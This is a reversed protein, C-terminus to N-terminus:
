FLTAITRYGNLASSIMNDVYHSVKRENIVRIFAEFYTDGGYWYSCTLIVTTYVLFVASFTLPSTFGTVNQKHENKNRKGCWQPCCCKAWNICAEFEHGGGILEWWKSDCCKRFVFVIFSIVVCIGYVVAGTWIYVIFAVLSHSIGVPLYIIFFIVGLIWWIGKLVTNIYDWITSKTDNDEQLGDTVITEDQKTTSTESDISEVDDNYTVNTNTQDDGDIRTIDDLCIESPLTNNLKHKICVGYGWVMFTTLLSFAKKFNSSTVIIRAYCNYMQFVSEDTITYYDYFANFDVMFNLSMSIIQWLLLISPLVLKFKNMCSKCTNNDSKNILQSSQSNNKSLQDILFSVWYQIWIGIIIVVFPQLTQPELCATMSKM